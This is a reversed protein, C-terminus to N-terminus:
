TYLYQQDTNYYYCALCMGTRRTNIRSLSCCDWKAINERHSFIVVRGPTNGTEPSVWFLKTRRTITKFSDNTNLTWLLINRWACKIACWSTFVVQTMKLKQSTMKWPPWTTERVVACLNTIHQLSFM